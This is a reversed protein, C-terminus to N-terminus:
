SLPAKGNDPPELPLFDAQRHLLCLNLEKTPFLGQLLFHCGPLIRAQLIGHVSSGPPSCNMPKCLTLCSQARMFACLVTTPNPWPHLRWLCSFILLRLLVGSLNFFILLSHWSSSKLLLPHNSTNFTASPDLQSFVSFYGIHHDPAWCHWYYRPQSCSCVRSGCKLSMTHIYLHSNIIQVSWRWQLPQSLILVASLKPTLTFHSILGTSLVPASPHDLPIPHPPLHSPTWSPFVHLDM